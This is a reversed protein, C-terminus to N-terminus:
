TMSIELLLKKKIFFINKTKMKNLDMILRFKERPIKFLLNMNLVSKQELHERVMHLYQSFIEESSSKEKSLQLYAEFDADYLRELQRQAFDHSVGFRLEYESWTLEAILCDFQEARDALQSLILAEPGDMDLKIMRFHRNGM